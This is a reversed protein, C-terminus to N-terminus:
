DQGTSPYAFRSIEEMMPGLAEVCREFIEKGHEASALTPDGIVGSPM